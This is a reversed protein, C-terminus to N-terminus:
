KCDDQIKTYRYRQYCDFARMIILYISGWMVALWSQTIFDYSNAWVASGGVMLMLLYELLATNRHGVGSQVVRQYYHECHGQWVKEGRFFRKILTMSADVIFPSFILLPLWFSWLGKVWGLIGFAAALFGLPVAGVDGLFIKAPHFNFRLFAGASAMICFNIVAFEMDGTLLATVGYYGFGIFAMGGALGDSGDMFNYLNSMWAIALGMGIVMVWNYGDLLLMASFSIAVLIHALLRVLVSVGKVDDALSVLALVSFGVWLSIPLSASFLLWVLLISLILGIGGTRPVPTSHLSRKNPFDLIKLANGKVLWFILLYAVLFSLLPAAVLQFSFESNM